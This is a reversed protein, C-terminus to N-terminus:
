RAAAPQFEPNGAQWLMFADQGAFNRFTVMKDETFHGDDFNVKM